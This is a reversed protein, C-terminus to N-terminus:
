VCRNELFAELEGAHNVLDALMTNELIRLQRVQAETWVERFPCIDEAACKSPETLCLSVPIQGDVAEMIQKFNIENAPRALAVGGSTGRYAKLLGARILRQVLKGLFAASIDKREAIERTKVIGNENSSAAIDMMAKVAYRCGNTM